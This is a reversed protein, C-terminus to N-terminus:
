LCLKGFDPRELLLLVFWPASRHRMFCSLEEDVDGQSAFFGHFETSSHIELRELIIPFRLKSYFSLELNDAIGEDAELSDLGFGECAPNRFVPPDDAKSIQYRVPVVNDIVIDEVVQGLIM